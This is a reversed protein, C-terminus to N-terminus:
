LLCGSIVGTAFLLFCVACRLPPARVLGTTRAAPLVGGRATTNTIACIQAATIRYPTARHLCLSLITLAAATTTTLGAWCCGWGRTLVLGSASPGGLSISESAM